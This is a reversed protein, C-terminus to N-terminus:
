YDRLPESSLASLGRQGRHPTQEPPDQGSAPAEPAPRTLDRRRHRARPRRHGEPPDQVARGLARDRPRRRRARRGLLLADSRRPLARGTLVRRAVDLDGASTARTSTRPRQFRSLRGHQRACSRSARSRRSLQTSSPAPRRRRQPVERPRTTAVARDRVAARGVSDIGGRRRPDGPDPTPGPRTGGFGGPSRGRGAVAALALGEQPADGPLPSASRGESNRGDQRLRPGARSSVTEYPSRSTAPEDVPLPAAADKEGPLAARHAGLAPSCPGTRAESMEPPKEQTLLATMTDAAPRGSRAAHGLADRLAGRRALLPGLPPGVPRAGCRSPRCTARPHRAGHGSDTDGKLAPRRPREPGERTLKALGFDLIKVRGDDTIFLNEPKLDRHVIGKSTPPPWVTARDPARLRRAKRLPFRGEALGGLTGGELLESVVYPAGDPRRRRLGRPRESPEARRGRAGGARLARLTRIAAVERPPGQDGGRPLLRPDRARYVEGM